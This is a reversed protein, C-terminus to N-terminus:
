VPLGLRPSFNFYPWGPSPALGSKDDGALLSAIGVGGSAGLSKGLEDGLMSRWIGGATGQGYVGDEGKPLMTQMMQGLVFGELEAYAKLKPDDAAALLRKAGAEARVPDAARMVDLVMDNGLDRVRGAEPKSAIAAFESTGGLKAYAREARRPDAAKIVDSVLDSTVAIAM